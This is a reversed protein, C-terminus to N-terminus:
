MQRRYSLALSAVAGLQQLLIEDEVTFDDGEIKDTVMLFGLVVEGPGLLPVGLLGRLPAHGEPLGWWRPNSRMAEDSFRIPAKNELLDMFIGGQEISFRAGTSCLPVEGTKATGVTEFAGGGSHGCVAYRTGTIERATTVLLSLVGEPDEEQLVKAAMDVIRKLRVQYLHHLEAQMRAQYTIKDAHKRAQELLNNAKVFEATRERVRKELEENVRRLLEERRLTEEARRRETIDRVAAVAYPEGRFSVRRMCIEVPFPEGDRRDFVTTITTLDTGGDTAIASMQHRDEEPVLDFLTMSLLSPRTIGLGRVATGNADAIEFMPLRLLFILEHSEDLLARFRALNEIQDQLEPYYTKRRSKEGLGIVLNRLGDWKEESHQKM